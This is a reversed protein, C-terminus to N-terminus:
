AAVAIMARVTEMKAVLAFTEEYDIGYTYAYGKAVLCAKYRSVSGDSDHNVKYVWKCGISKKGEPFPVLDWTENEYLANMEEDMDKEWHMNGIADDFCTPDVVEVVKAMTLMITHWMGMM